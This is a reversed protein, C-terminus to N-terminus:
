SFPFTLRINLELSFFRSNILIDIIIVYMELINGVLFTRTSLGSSARSLLHKFLEQQIFPGSSRM